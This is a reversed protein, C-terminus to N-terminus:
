ERGARPTMKFVVKATSMKCFSPNNGTPQSGAHLVFEQIRGKSRETAHSTIESLSGKRRGHLFPQM